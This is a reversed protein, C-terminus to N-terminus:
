RGLLGAVRLAFGAPSLTASVNLRPLAYPLVRRRPIWGGDVKFAGQYGAEAAAAMVRQSTRGYPYSLWAIAASGFHNELWLKSDVLEARLEAPSLRTLNPHSITHSGLAVGSRAVAAHLDPLSAARAYSPLDDRVPAGAAGAWRRVETDLGRCEHLAHERAHTALEGKANALSDWWFAGGGVFGTAVFITAQLGRRAMEDMGVTVAGLYADDFTIAVRPRRDGPVAAEALSVVRCRRALEDLQAAFRRQSLHLPAEGAPPEGAPVINHYALVLTRGSTGLRALRAPGGRLLVLEAVRKFANM